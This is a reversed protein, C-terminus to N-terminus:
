GDRDQITSQPTEERLRHVSMEGLGDDYVKVVVGDREYTAPLQPHNARVVDGVLVGADGSTEAEVMSTYIVTRRHEVLFKAM